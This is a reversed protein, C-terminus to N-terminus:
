RSRLRAVAYPPLSLEEDAFERELSDMVAFDKTAREFEPAALISVSGTLKPSLKVNKTQGTLNAVWIEVVGNGAVGIAQIERPKSITLAILPQSRLAALGKIV